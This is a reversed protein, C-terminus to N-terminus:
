VSKFRQLIMKQFKEEIIRNFTASNGMFQRKPINITLFQKKTLALAKFMPNRTEKFKYWFFKRSRETIPVHIVGGENHIRAHAATATLRVRKTSSEGIGISDILQNTKVLLARGADTGNKREQWPQVSADLFGQREFNGLVFNIMEVEAITQADVILQKGIKEFNPIKDIM